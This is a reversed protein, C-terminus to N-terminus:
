RRLIQRMVDASDPSKMFDKTREQMSDTKKGDNNLLVNNIENLKAASKIDTNLDYTSAPKGNINNSVTSLQNEGLKALKTIDNKEIKLNPTAVKTDNIAVLRDTINEFAHMKKLTWSEDNRLNKIFEKCLEQGNPLKALNDLITKTSQIIRSTQSLLKQCESDTLGSNTQMENIAHCDQITLHTNGKVLAKYSAEGLKDFKQINDNLNNIEQKGMKLIDARKGKLDIDLEKMKNFISALETGKNTIKEENEPNLIYEVTKKSTIKGEKNTISTLLSSITELKEKSMNALKNFDDQNVLNDITLLPLDNNQLTTLIKAMPELKAPDLAMLTGLVRDSDAKEGSKTNILNKEILTNLCSTFAKSSNEDYIKNNEAAERSVAKITHSNLINNDSLVGLAQSALKAQNENLAMVEEVRKVKPNSGEKFLVNLCDALASGHEKTQIQEANDTIATWYEEKIRGNENFNYNALIMNTGRHKAFGMNVIDVINKDSIKLGSKQMNEIYEGLALGTDNNKPTYAMVAKIMKPTVEIKFKTLVNLLFKQEIETMETNLIALQAKSSLKKSGETYYVRSLVRVQKDKEGSVINKFQDYNLPPTVNNLIGLANVREVQNTADSFSIDTEANETFRKLYPKCQDPHRAALEALSITTDSQQQGM